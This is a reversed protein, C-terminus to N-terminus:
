EKTEASLCVNKPKSIVAFKRSEEGKFHIKGSTRERVTLLDRYSVVHKGEYPVTQVTKHTLDKSGTLTFSVGSCLSLIHSLVEMIQSKCDTERRAFYSLAQVWLSTDLTRNFFVLFCHVFVHLLLCCGGCDYRYFHLSM